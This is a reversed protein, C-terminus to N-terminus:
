GNKGKGVRKEMEADLAPLIALLLEAWRRVDEEDLYPMEALSGKQYPQERDWEAQRRFFDGALGLSPQRLVKDLVARKAAFWQQLQADTCVTTPPLIEGKQLTKTVKEGSECNLWLKGGLNPDYGYKDLQVWILTYARGCPKWWFTQPLRQDEYGHGKLWGGLVQRMIRHVEAAKAM